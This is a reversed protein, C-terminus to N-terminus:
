QVNSNTSSKLNNSRDLSHTHMHASSVSRICEHAELMSYIHAHTWLFIHVNLPLNFYCSAWLWIAAFRLVADGEDEFRLGSYLLFTTTDGLELGFCIWTNSALSNLFTEFVTFSRGFHDCVLGCRELSKCFLTELSTLLFQFM